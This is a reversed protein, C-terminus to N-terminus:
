PARLCATPERNLVFVASLQLNPLPDTVHARRSGGQPEHAQVQPLCPPGVHRVRMRLHKGRTRRPPCLPPHVPAAPSAVAAVTPVSATFVARRCRPRLPPPFPPLPRRSSPRNTGSAVAVSPPPSPPPPGCPTLLHPPPSSPPLTLPPRRRPCRPRSASRPRRRRVAAPATISAPAATTFTSPTDADSLPAAPAASPPPHPPHPAPWLRNPLPSHRRYHRRRRRYPPRSWPQRRRPRSYRPLGVAASVSAAGPAAAASPPQPPPPAALLRDGIPHGDFWSAVCTWGAAIPHTRPNAVVRSHWLFRHHSDGPCGRSHLLSREVRSPTRVQTAMSSNPSVLGGRRLWTRGRTPSWGRIGFLDITVMGLADARTCHVEQVVGHHGWNPPWRVILLCLDVGGCGPGDALPCGGAFALSISSSWGCPNWALAISRKCWAM